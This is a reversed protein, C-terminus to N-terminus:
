DDKGSSYEKIMKDLEIKYNDSLNIDENANLNKEEKMDIDKSEGKIDIYNEIDDLIEMDKNIGM